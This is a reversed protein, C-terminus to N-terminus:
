ILRTAKGIEKKLEDILKKKKPDVKEIKKITKKLIEIDKDMEKLNNSKKAVM